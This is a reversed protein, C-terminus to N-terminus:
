TAECRRRLRSLTSAREERLAELDAGSLGLEEAVGGITLGSDNFTLALLATMRTAEDGDYQDGIGRLMCQCQAAAVDCAELVTSEWDTGGRDCGVLAATAALAFGVGQRRRGNRWFAMM